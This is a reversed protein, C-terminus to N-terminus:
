RDLALALIERSADTLQITDMLRGQASQLDGNLAEVADLIEAADEPHQAYAASFGEFMANWTNSDSYNFGTGKRAATLASGYERFRLYFYLLYQHLSNSPVDLLQGAYAAAQSYYEASGMDACNYLYSVMWDNRDFVDIRVAKELASFMRRTSGSASQMSAAAYLNLGILVAYVLSLIGAAARGLQGPLPKKLERGYCRDILALLCYGYLLYIPTSMVVEMFSHLLLLSFAACLAPHLARFPSSARGGRLLSALSLALLALYLLFGVVGCDLLVQIYHNHVYKTEYRFDQYGFILCEFSGLGAGLIPHDRFVKMGDRFFAARQIANENARLGQLRNAIFGPLLPYDLHLAQDKAGDLLVSRLSVDELATFTLHVVRSGEPVTFSAGQGPGAYLSSATHMVVERDDQSEVAVEFSGDADYALVYDGAEPYVSRRLTQGASLRATGGLLVGGAAYLLMLALVSVFFLFTLRARKELALLLRPLVLLELAAAAAAALFACLLPLALRAGEAEFASFSLFVAGLSPLAVALMHLLAALRERGACLLYVAASLLFFGSAGLSFNLLFTTAQFSAFVAASIRETLSKGTSLLYISFFLCLGLLGASINPNSFIGTLRTGSEFGFDGMTFGPILSFFGYSLRLSALDISFIAFAAGIASLFTLLKRVASERRPLYLLVFLVLPLAFLQKSYERLFLKGSAAWLLSLGMWLLFAAFLPLFATFPEKKRRGRLSAALLAASLLCLLLILWKQNQIFQRMGLFVSAVAALVVILLFLLEKRSGGSPSAEDAGRLRGPASPRGKAPSQNTKRMTKM